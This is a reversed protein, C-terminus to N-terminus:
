GLCMRLSHCPLLLSFGIMWTSELSKKEYWMWWDDMLCCSNRTWTWLCRIYFCVEGKLSLFRLTEHCLIHIRPHHHHHYTSRNVGDATVGATACPLRSWSRRQSGEEERVGCAQPSECKNSSTKMQKLWKAKQFRYHLVYTSNEIRLITPLLTTAWDHRVRTVGHAWWAWRDRPSELCSYQLPNGNRKGPSIGSGPISGLDGSNCASEKGGSSGITLM